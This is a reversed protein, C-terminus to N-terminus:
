NESARRTLAGTADLADADGAGGSAARVLEGKSGTTTVIVGVSGVVVQHAVAGAGDALCATDAQGRYGDTGGGRALRSCCLM